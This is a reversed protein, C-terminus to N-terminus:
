ELIDTWGREGDDATVLDNEDVHGDATMEGMGFIFRRKVESEGVVVNWKEKYLLVGQFLPKKWKREGMIKYVWELCTNIGVPESFSSNYQPALDM